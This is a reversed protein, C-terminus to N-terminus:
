WARCSWYRAKDRPGPNSCNHRARFSKRRAPISKKIRMNPDGFNVKVVNGKANKVYVSRKKPGGPTLFPKGLSVKRGQYEAEELKNYNEMIYEALCMPCYENIEDVEDLKNGAAVAAKYAKSGKPSSKEGRARKANINAWLGKSAEEVDARVQHFENPGDDDITHMENARRSCHSKGSLFPKPCSTGKAHVHGCKGCCTSKAEVM